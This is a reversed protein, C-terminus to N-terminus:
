NLTTHIIQKTEIHQIFAVIHSNAYNWDPWEKTYSKVISANEDFRDGNKDSLFGRFVFNFHTLGNSGPAANFRIDDEIIAV